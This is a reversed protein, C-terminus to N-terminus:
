FQYPIRIHLSNLLVQIQNVNTLEEYNTGAENAEFLNAMVDFTRRASQELYICLIHNQYSSGVQIICPLFYKQQKSADGTNALPLKSTIEFIKVPTTNNLTIPIDYLIYRGYLISDFSDSDMFSYFKANEWDLSTLAYEENVCNRIKTGGELINVIQTAIANQAQANPHYGDSAWWDDYCISQTLKTYAWGSQAYCENYKKWLTFRTSPSNTHYGLAFLYIKLSPNTFHTSILNKCRQIGDRIAQDTSSSDNYGGTFVIDTISEKHTISSLFSYLVEDFAYESGAVAGFKAGGKHVSFFNSDSIHMLNKVISPFATVSGDPTWGEAYSDGIFLIRRTRAATLVENFLGASIANQVATPIETNIKEQIEGDVNDIYNTCDNVDKELNETKIFLEKVTKILWDLNLTHLDSYPWMNGPIFRNFFGM